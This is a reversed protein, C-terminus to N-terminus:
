SLLGVRRMLDAFRPDDRIKDFVPAVKLEMMGGFREAYARELWVFAKEKEGLEAYIAARGFSFVYTGRKEEEDMEALIKQVEKRGATAYIVGLPGNVRKDADERSLQQTFLEFAKQQEAIADDYRGLFSYNKSLHMHARAFNADMELAKQLFEVAREHDRSWFYPLSSDTAIILSLPDLTRARELAVNAEDFRGMEGLFVGYRHHATAYDPNLEIARKYEREAAVFDWEWREKITALSVHAEASTSDIELARLAAEKAKPFLTAPLLAALGLGTSLNCYADAIGTYALAYSPDLSVAQNFYEISKHIDKETRKNWFYRGLIYLRYAEPDTTNRKSLQQEEAGSLKLSLKTSVDRVIEGQMALLDASKRVYQEGWIRRNDKADDLSVNIVLQDGLQKVSGTLVARVGLENAIKRVDQEKEKYRFVSNRSMVKLKPIQSLNNILNETIGDSLYETNPDGGVNALPLVAISEIPTLNSSPRAFFWYGLGTVGLLLTIGLAYVKTRKKTPSRHPATQALANAATAEVALPATKVGILPATSPSDDQADSIATVPPATEKEYAASVEANFRYGRRRFTEILPKGDAANGLTKRLLYINQTLNSEEVFSNAWLRNMLQDKSVLEGSREILALLTEVVKPALPLAQSNEYLLLHLADLRFRDFVYIERTKLNPSILNDQSYISTTESSM